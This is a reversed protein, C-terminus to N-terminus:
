WPFGFLEGDLGQDVYVKGAASRYFRLRNPTGYLHMTVVNGAIAYDSECAAPDCGGDRVRGKGDFALTRPFPREDPDPLELDHPVRLLAAVEGARLPILGQLPVAEGSYSPMPLPAATNGAVPAAAPKDCAALMVALGAFALWRRM